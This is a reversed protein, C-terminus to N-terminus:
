VELVLTDTVTLGGGVIANDQIETIGSNPDLILNGTSTDIENGNSNNIRVNGVQLGANIDVVGSFTSVGTM